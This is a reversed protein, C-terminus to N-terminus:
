NQVLTINYGTIGDEKTSPKMECNLKGIISKFTQKENFIRRHMEIIEGKSKYKKSEKGSIFVNSNGRMVDNKFWLKFKNIKREIESKNYNYIQINNDIQFNYEKQLSNIIQMFDNKFYKEVYADNIDLENNIYMTIPEYVRTDLDYVIDILIESVKNEEQLYECLKVFSEKQTYQSLINELTTIIDEINKYGYSTKQYYKNCDLYDEIVKLIRKNYKYKDDKYKDDSANYFYKLQKKTLIIEIDKCIKLFLENKDDEYEEYAIEEIISKDTEKDANFISYNDRENENEDNWKSPADLYFYNINTYTHKNKGGVNKQQSYYEEHIGKDALQMHKKGIIGILYKCVEKGVDNKLIYKFDEINNVEINFNNKLHKNLKGESLMILKEFGLLLGERRTGEWDTSRKWGKAYKNECSIFYNHWVGEKKIEDM